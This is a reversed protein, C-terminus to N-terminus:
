PLEQVDLPSGPKPVAAAIASCQFPVRLWAAPAPHAEIVRPQPGRPGARGGTGLTHRWALALASPRWGPGASTVPPTEQAGTGLRPHPHWCWHQTPEARLSSWLSHGRRHGWALELRTVWVPHPCQPQPHAEQKPEAPLLFHCLQWSSKTVVAGGWCRCCCGQSSEPPSHGLAVRGQGLAGGQVPGEPHASQGEALLHEGGRAAGM